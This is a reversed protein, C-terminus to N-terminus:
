NEQVTTPTGVQLLEQQFNYRNQLIQNNMMTRSTMFDMKRTTGQRNLDKDDKTELKVFLM